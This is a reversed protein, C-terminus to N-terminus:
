QALLLSFTAATAPRFWWTRQAYPGQAFCVISLSCRQGPCLKENPLFGNSSDQTKTYIFLPMHYPSAFEAMGKAQFTLDYLFTLALNSCKAM